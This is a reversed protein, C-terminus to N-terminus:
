KGSDDAGDAAKELSRLSHLTADSLRLKGVFRVRLEVDGDLNLMEDEVYGTLLDTVAELTLKPERYLRRTLLEGQRYIRAEITM